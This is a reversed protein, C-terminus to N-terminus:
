EGGKAVRVSIGGTTSASIALVKRKKFLEFVEALLKEDVTEPIVTTQVIHETGDPLLEEGTIDKVAEWVEAEEDEAQRVFRVKTDM